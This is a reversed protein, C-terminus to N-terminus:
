PYFLCYVGCLTIVSYYIQFRFRRFRESDDNVATTTRREPQDLQPNDINKSSELLEHVSNHLSKIKDVMIAGDVLSVANALYYQQAILCLLLGLICIQFDRLCSVKEHFTEDNPNVM